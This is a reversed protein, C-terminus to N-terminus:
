QDSLMAFAAAAVRSVQGNGIAKVRDMRNAVGTAVRPVADEWSGDKWAAQGHHALLRSLAQMADTHEGSRQESQGPRHPAGTTGECLRVGRMEEELAEACAMFLRAEDPRHAHECLEALLIAAEHIGIPRGIERQIEQAADGSRLMRMVESRGTETGNHMGMLWFCMKVHSIPQLSTWDDPWGMLKEVWTPNLQGTLGAQHAEREVTYDIRDDTNARNHNKSWGKYATATATATPTPTPWTRAATALGTGSNKSAGPKNYNGHVTPTPWLGSATASIPRELTPHQFVHGNRMLGWKPLIVSCWPLVEEWLCHATKWSCSNRDFKVSSERWKEGCGLDSVMLEPALGPLPYTRVRSDALFWTLLAAGLDDTLVACTLGFLSLSSADMMKDNRWFPHQTPMVNLQAYPVGDSCTAESYEAVLAQSFLWSM